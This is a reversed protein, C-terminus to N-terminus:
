SKLLRFLALLLIALLILVAALWYSTGRPQSDKEVAADPEGRNSAGNGEPHYNRMREWLKRVEPDHEILSEVYSRESESCNGNLYKWVLEKDPEYAM